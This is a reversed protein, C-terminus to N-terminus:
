AGFRAVFDTICRKEEATFRAWEQENEFKELKEAVKALTKRMDAISLPKEVKKEKFVLQGISATTIRPFGRLEERRKSFDAIAGNWAVGSKTVKILALSKDTYCVEKLDEVWMSTVSLRRVVEKLIDKGAPGVDFLVDLRTHQFRCVVENVAPEILADSIERSTVKTDHLAHALFTFSEMTERHKLADEITTIEIAM